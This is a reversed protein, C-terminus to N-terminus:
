GGAVLHQLCVQLIHKGPAVAPNYIQLPEGTIPHTRRRAIPLHCNANGARMAGHFETVVSYRLRLESDFQVHPVSRPFSTLIRHLPGM